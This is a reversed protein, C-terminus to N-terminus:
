ERTACEVVDDNGSLPVQVAGKRVAELVMASRPSMASSV